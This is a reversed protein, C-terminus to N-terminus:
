NRIKYDDILNLDQLPRYGESSTVFDINQQTTKSEETKELGNRRESYCTQIFDAVPHQVQIQRTNTKYQHIKKNESFIKKTKSIDRKITDSKM